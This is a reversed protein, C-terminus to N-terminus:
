LYIRLRPGLKYKEGPEYYALADLKGIIPIMAQLFSQEHEHSPIDCSSHVIVLSDIDSYSYYPKVEQCDICEIISMGEWRQPVHEHYGYRRLARQLKLHDDYTPKRGRPHESPAIDMDIMSNM